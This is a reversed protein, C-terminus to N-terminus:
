AGSGRPALPTAALDAELLRGQDYTTRVDALDDSSRQETVAGSQCRGPRWAARGHIVAYAARGADVIRSTGASEPVRHWM